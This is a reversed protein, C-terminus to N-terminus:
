DVVSKIKLIRSLEKSDYLVSYIEGDSYYFIIDRSTIVNIPVWVNFSVTFIPNEKLKNLLSKNSELKSITLDKVDNLIYETIHNYLNSDVKYLVELKIELDKPKFLRKLISSLKSLM